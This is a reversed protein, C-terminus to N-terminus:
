FLAIMFECVLSRKPKDASSPMGIPIIDAKTLHPPFNGNGGRLGLSINSAAQPGSLAILAASAISQERLKELGAM